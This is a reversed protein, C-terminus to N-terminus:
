HRKCTTCRYHYHDTVGNCIPCTSGGSNHYPAFSSSAAHTYSQPRYGKGNCDPCTGGSSLSSSSSSSSSSSGSSGGGRKTKLYADAYGPPWLDVSLKVGQGGCESCVRRGFCSPCPQYNKFYAHYYSGQGNCMRCVKQGYCMICKTYTTVSTYGDKYNVFHAEGMPMPGNYEFDIIRGNTDKQGQRQTGSYSFLRNVDSNGSYSSGGGGYPTGSAASALAGVFQSIASGVQERKERREAAAAKNRIGRASSRANYNGLASAKDYYQLATNTDGSNEYIKGISALARAKYGAKNADDVEIVKKYLAVREKISGSTKKEAKEYMQAPIPNEENGARDINTKYGKYTAVYKDTKADWRLADYSRASFVNGKYELVWRGNKRTVRKEPNRFRETDIVVFDSGIKINFKKDSGVFITNSYIPPIIEVGKEDCIGNKGKLEVSFYKIGDRDWTYIYDYKPSILVRGKEDLVGWKNDKKIEVRLRGHIDNPSVFDYIDPVILKGNKDYVGYNDGKRIKYCLINSKLDESTYKEKFVVEISKCEVFPQVISCADDFVAVSKRNDDEKRSVVFYKCTITKDNHKLSGREMLIYSYLCPLMEKCSADILGWKTGEDDTKAVKFIRVSDNLDIILANTYKDPALLEYGQRDVFGVYKNNSVKFVQDNEVYEVASYGRARGAIVNKKKGISIGVTGDPYKVEWWAFKEPKYAKYKKYKQAYAPQAILLVGVLMAFLFITKRLDILCNKM